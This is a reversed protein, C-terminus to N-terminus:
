NLSPDDTRWEGVEEDDNKVPPGGHNSEPTDEQGAKEKQDIYHHVLDDAGKLATGIVAVVAQAQERGVLSCFIFTKIIDAIAHPLLDVMLDRQGSGETFTDNFTGKLGKLNISGKIEENEIPIKM